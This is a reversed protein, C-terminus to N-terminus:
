HLQKPALTIMSSCNRLSLQLVSRATNNKVFHVEIRARNVYTQERTAVLDASGISSLWAILSIRRTGLPGTQPSLM